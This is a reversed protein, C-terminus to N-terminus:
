MNLVPSFFMKFDVPGKFGLSLLCTLMFHSSSLFLYQCHTFYLLIPYVAIVPSTLSLLRWFWSQKKPLAEPCLQASCLREASHNLFLDPCSHAPSHAKSIHLVQHLSQLAHTFTGSPMSPSYSSDKGGSKIGNNLMILGILVPLSPLHSALSWFPIFLWCDLCSIFLAQGQM